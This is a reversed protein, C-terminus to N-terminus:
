EGVEYTLITLFGRDQRPEEDRQGGGSGTETNQMLSKRRGGNPQGEM